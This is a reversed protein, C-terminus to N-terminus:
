PIEKMTRVIKLNKTFDDTEIMSAIKSNHEVIQLRFTGEILWGPNLLRNAMNGHATILASNSLGFGGGSNALMLCEQEAQRYLGKHREPNLEVLIASGEALDEYTACLDEWLEAYEETDVEGARAYEAAESALMTVDDNGTLVASGVPYLLAYVKLGSLEQVGARVGPISIHEYESHNLRLDLVGRVKLPIVDPLPENDFLKRAMEDPNIGAVAEQAKRVDAGSAYWIGVCALLAMFGGAIPVLPFRKKLPLDDGLSLYTDHFEDM